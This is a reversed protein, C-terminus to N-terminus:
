KQPFDSPLQAPETAPRTTIEGVQALKVTVTEGGSTLRVTFDLDLNAKVTAGTEPHLWMSLQYHDVDIKIEADKPVLTDFMTRFMSEMVAPSLTVDVRTAATGDVQETGGLKVVAEQLVLKQLSPIDIAGALKALLAPDFKGASEWLGTLPNKAWLQGKSVVVATSVPKPATTSSQTVTSVIQDNFAHTTLDFTLETKLPNDENQATTLALNQKLHMTVIQNPIATSSNLQASKAMLAIADADSEGNYEVRVSQTAADWKVFVGLQESIFRVPVLTRSGQLRPAVRLTLEKGDVMARTSGLWLQISKEGKTLTIKSESAEFDVKFGMAEALARLPVLTTGNEILPDVDFKVESKGVFVHVKNEQAYSPAAVAVLLLGALASALLKRM